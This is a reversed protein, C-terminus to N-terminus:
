QQLTWKARKFLNLFLLNNQFFQFFFFFHINGRDLVALVLPGLSQHRILVATLLRELEQIPHDAPFEQHWILNNEKCYRESLIIWSSVLPETLRAEGLGILLSEVRQLM